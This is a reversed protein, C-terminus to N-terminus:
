KDQKVQDVTSQKEGVESAPRPRQKKSWGGHKSFDLDFHGLVM